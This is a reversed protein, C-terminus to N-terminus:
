LHPERRVDCRVECHVERRETHAECLILVDTTPKHDVMLVGHPRLLCWEEVDCNAPSPQTDLM